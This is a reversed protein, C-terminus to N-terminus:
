RRCDYCLINSAVCGPWDGVVPARGACEVVGFECRCLEYRTDIGPASCGALAPAVLRVPFRCAAPAACGPEIRECVRPASWRHEVVVLQPCGTVPDVGEVRSPGRQGSCSADRPAPAEADVYVGAASSACALMPVVAALARM